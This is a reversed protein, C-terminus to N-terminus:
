LSELARNLAFRLIRWERVDMWLDRYQKRDEADKAHVLDVINLLTDDAIIESSIRNRISRIADAVDYANAGTGFEPDYSDSTPGPM